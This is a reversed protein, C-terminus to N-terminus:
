GTSSQIPAARSRGARLSGLSAAVVFGAMALALGPVSLGVDLLLGALAPAVATSLVMCGHALGRIAGLHTVGYLEPWLAGMLTGAAGVSLGALGLYLPAALQGGGLALVLLALALPLLYVPLLRVAGLRDVLPGSLLLALVHSVAFAPFVAALWGLTWGKAEAVAVQHIFLATIVFPPALLAPLAAYFRADRLVARRGWDGANGTGTGEARSRPVAEGRLLALALPLGLLLLAAAIALWAGRWGLGAILLVAVSPLVAEALPLGLTVVSVATGRRRDFRRAVTTQAVHVMLGQGCVRLLLLAPLLVWAAPASALLVAGGAAGALVLTTFLPLALRDVGRGLFILLLGSILTALAYVGGFGANSLGFAARIEGGFLSIFFSQGSGSLGVLLVGFALLRVHPQLDLVLNRFRGPM